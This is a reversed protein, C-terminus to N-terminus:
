RSSSAPQRAMKTGPAGAVGRVGMGEDELYAVLTKRVMQDADVILGKPKRM